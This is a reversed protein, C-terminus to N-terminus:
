FKISVFDCCSRFFNRHTTFFCGITSVIIAEDSRTDLYSIFVKTHWDKRHAVEAFIFSLTRPILGRDVYSEAGGTITFTKGSRRV